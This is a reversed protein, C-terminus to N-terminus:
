GNMSQNLTTGHNTPENPKTYYNALYLKSLTEIMGKKQEIANLTAYTLDVLRTCDAFEREKATVELDATVADKVADVTAKALSQRYHNAKEAKLVDLEIRCKDRANKAEALEGGYHAMLSAQREAELELAFRNLRVDARIDYTPEEM